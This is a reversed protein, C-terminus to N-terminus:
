EVDGKNNDYESSTEHDSWIGIATGVFLIYLPFQDLPSEKEILRIKWSFIMTIFFRLRYKETAFEYM